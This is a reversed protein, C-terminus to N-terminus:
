GGLGEHIEDLTLQDSSPPPLRTAAVREGTLATWWWRMGRPATRLGLREFPLNTRGLFGFEGVVAVVTQRVRDNWIYDDRLLTLVEAKTEAARYRAATPHDGDMLRRRVERWLMRQRAFWDWAYGPPVPAVDM